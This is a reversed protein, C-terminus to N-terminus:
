RPQAVRREEIDHGQGRIEPGYPLTKRARTPDLEETLTALGNAGAALWHMDDAYKERLAAREDADFPNWREAVGPVDTTDAGRERLLTRLQRANLARNLWEPDDERPAMQKTAASALFDPRGMTTEFPFVEVKADSAACAVDGIV